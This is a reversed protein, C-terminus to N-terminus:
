IRVIVRGMNAWDGDPPYFPDISLSTMSPDNSEIQNMIENITKGEGDISIKNSIEDDDPM